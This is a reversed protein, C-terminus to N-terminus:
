EGGGRRGKGSDGRPLNNTPPRLAGLYGALGRRTKKKPDVNDGVLTNTDERGVCGSPGMRRAQTVWGGGVYKEEM